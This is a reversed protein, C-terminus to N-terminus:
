GIQMEEQDSRNIHDIVHTVEHSDDMYTNYQKSFKQRIKIDVILQDGAKFSEGSSVKKNFIEDTIKMGLMRGQYIVKWALTPEFSPKVIWLNVNSETKEILTNIPTIPQIYDKLKDRVISLDPHGPAGITLEIANDDQLSQTLIKNLNQGIEPKEYLHYTSQNITIQNNNGSVVTITGDNNNKISIPPDKKLLDRLKIIGQITSYALKSYKLFEIQNFLNNGSVASASVFLDFIFSGEKPPAVYLKLQCEPIVNNNIQQSIRSFSSLIEALSDSNIQHGEKLKIHIQIPASELNDMM